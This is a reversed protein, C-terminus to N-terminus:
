KVTLAYRFGNRYANNSTTTSPVAQRKGSAIVNWGGDFCGGRLCHITGTEPGTPNVLPNTEDWAMGEPPAPYAAYWDSCWEAVNGAMDYFGWANPAFQGVLAHGQGNKSVTPGYTGTDTCMCFNGYMTKDAAQQGTYNKGNYYTTLAGARCACEWQAETPLSFGSVQRGRCTARTSLNNFPQDPVTENWFLGFKPATASDKTALSTGVILKYQQATTEFIALYYDETLQVYQRSVGSWETINGYRDVTWETTGVGMWFSGAPVRKLVLRSTKYLDKNFVSTPMDTRIFRVPYPGATGASLDVVMYTSDSLTGIDYTLSAKVSGDPVLAAYGDAVTNWTVRHSGNASPLDCGAYTLFNSCVATVGGTTVSFSVFYDNADDTAEIGSVTYDIDVYGNWPYRQQVRDIVIQPASCAVMAACCSISFILRKM